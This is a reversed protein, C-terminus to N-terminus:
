RGRDAVCGAHVDVQHAGVVDDLIHLPYRLGVFLGVSFEVRRVGHHVHAAVLDAAPVEGTIAPGHLTSLSLWIM